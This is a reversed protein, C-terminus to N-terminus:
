RGALGSETAGGWDQCYVRRRVNPRPEVEREFRMKLTDRLIHESV